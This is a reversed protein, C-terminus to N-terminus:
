SCRSTTAEKRCDTEPMFIQLLDNLFQQGKQTPKLTEINWEVLGQQEAQELQRQVDSMPLGTRQIFLSSPVGDPLRLANMMFELQLDERGLQKNETIAKENGALEMYREPIRHRVQRMVKGAAIDTLKSHAGAGIGLYDGFKWYNLNHLCQFGDRAYASIEYQRYGHQELLQQDAQQMDWIRDDEPLQPPKAYFVTNPEITLQYWSIHSPNHAVAQRLDQMANEITQGPLGYMIDINMDDFGADKAMGIAATAERGDHIRGLRNLHTDNFSQVGISLRNIGCARFARFRGAEATGPNAELTIEIDPYFNLRAQLAQLLRNLAEPSFLSPTGGGIFITNVRRGWIAPLSYELDRVLADM